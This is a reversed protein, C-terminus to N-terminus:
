RYVGGRHANYGERLRPYLRILLPHGPKRPVSPLSSSYRFDAENVETGNPSEELAKCYFYEIRTSGHHQAIIDLIEQPLGWARGSELGDKVHRKIGEASFTPSLTAHPNAQAIQHGLATLTRAPLLGSRAVPRSYIHNDSRSVRM